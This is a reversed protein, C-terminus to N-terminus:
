PSVSFAAAMDVRVFPRDYAMAPGAAGVRRANSIHVVMNSLDFVVVHLDRSHPCSVCFSSFFLRLPCRLVLPSPVFGSQVIPTIERITNEATVNGVARFKELQNHLATNYSPCLWDM